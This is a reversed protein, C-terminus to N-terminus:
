FWPSLEELMKHKPKAGIITKIVVGDEFLVMTPISSVSFELPKIPNEDINLKGVLIGHEKSIEDLIPSVRKCPGCWEAWFDILVLGNSKVVDDFSEDTVIM